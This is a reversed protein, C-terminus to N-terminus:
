LRAKPPAISLEPHNIFQRLSEPDEASSLNIADFAVGNVLKKTAVELRKGNTTYPQPPSLDSTNPSFM